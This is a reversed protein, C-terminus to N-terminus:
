KFLGEALVKVQILVCVLSEWSVNVIMDSNGGVQPYVVPVPAVVVVHRVGGPLAALRQQIMAWSGPRLVHDRGRETRSDLMLIATSSGLCGLWNWGFEGFVQNDDHIREPTSHQQLLCYFKRAM